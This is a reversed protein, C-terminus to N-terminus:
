GRCNVTGVPDSIRPRAKVASPWSRIATVRFPSTIRIEAVRAIAEVCSRTASARARQCTPAPPPSAYPRARFRASGRRKAEPSSDFQGDRTLAAWDRRPRVPHGFM